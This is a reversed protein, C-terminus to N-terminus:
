LRCRTWAECFTNVCEVGLEKNAVALSM